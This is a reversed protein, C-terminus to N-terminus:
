SANKGERRWNPKVKYVPVNKNPQAVVVYEDPEWKNQIKHRGKWAVRKVLVLDDIQLQSGKIKKDYSMKYKQAQKQSIEKARKYAFNLRQKLKQVYRTKSCTDGLVDIPLGDMEYDIPLRPQRGFMLYYPSYTTSPHKTCNYAHTMSSLHSKWDAKEKEPLTGLMNCLTSNFRECQGNTM